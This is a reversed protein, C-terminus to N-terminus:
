RRQASRRIGDGRRQVGTLHVNAQPGAGRHADLRLLLAHPRQELQDVRKDHRLQPVVDDKKDLHFAVFAIAGLATVLHRGGSRPMQPLWAAPM